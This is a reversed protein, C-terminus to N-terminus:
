AVARRRRAVRNAILLVYGAMAVLGTGVLAVSWRLWTDDSGFVATFWGTVVLLGLVWVLLCVGLAAVLSPVGADPMRFALRFLGFAVLVLMALVPVVVLGFVLQSVTQVTARDIRDVPAPGFVGGVTGGVLGLMLAATLETLVAVATDLRTAAAAAPLAAGRTWPTERRAGRRARRRAALVGAGRAVGYALFRLALGALLVVAAGRLGNRHRAAREAEDTLTCGPLLLVAAVAAPLRWSRL